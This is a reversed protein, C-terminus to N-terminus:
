TVAYRSLGCPRSRAQSSPLYRVTKTVIPEWSELANVKALTQEMQTWKGPVCFSDLKVPMFVRQFCIVSDGAQTDAPVLGLIEM